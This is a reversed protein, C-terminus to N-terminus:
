NEATNANLIKRITQELADRAQQFSLVFHLGIVLFDGRHWSPSTIFFHYLTAGVFVGIAYTVSEREVKVKKIKTQTPM